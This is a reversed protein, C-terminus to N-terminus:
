ALRDLEDVSFAADLALLSLRHVPASLATQASEVAYLSQDMLKTAM